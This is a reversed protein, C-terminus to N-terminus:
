VMKILDPRKINLGKLTAETHVMAFLVFFNETLLVYIPICRQKHSCSEVFLFSILDNTGNFINYNISM